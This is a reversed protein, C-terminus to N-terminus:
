TRQERADQRTEALESRLQVLQQDQTLRLDAVRQDDHVSERGSETRAADYEITVTAVTSRLPGAEERLENGQAHAKELQEGM